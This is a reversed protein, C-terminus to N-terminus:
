APDTGAPTATLQTQVVAESVSVLCAGLFAGPPGLGHM